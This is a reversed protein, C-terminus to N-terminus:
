TARRTLLIINEVHPTHPFQDFPAIKKIEYESFLLIDEQQTKPNCSIYLIKSAKLNQILAINKPGLGSRPPDLIVIDPEYLSHDEKLFALVDKQYIQMNEIGLREINEKADSVAEANLEVGVVQRVYSSLLIGITGVGCCLDLVKEKGSLALLAIAEKFMKEAVNQNPQFFAQPSFRLRKGLIEEELYPPGGLHMEFFSTPKGKTANHIILFISISPDLASAKIFGDIDRKTLAYEPRGSVTLIVMRSNTMKSSRFTLTRLSGTDKHPHYATLSSEKWWAYIKELSTSVWSHAILCKEIQVVKGKGESMNLGLYKEGAKDQSFTFEMKGRYHNLDDSPTIPEVDHPAFLREIYSQKHKLQADYQLQLFSCGGCIGAHPCPPDQREKSPTVIKILRAVVKDRKKKFPSVLLSDGIVGGIVEIPQSDNSIGHGKKSYETITVVKEEM